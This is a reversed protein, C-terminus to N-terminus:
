ITITDPASLSQTAKGEITDRRVYVTEGAAVALGALVRVNATGLNPFQVTAYATAGGSNGSVVTALRIPYNDAINKLKSFANTQAENLTLAQRIAIAGAGNTSVTVNNAFVVGRVLTTGFTFRCLRGLAV